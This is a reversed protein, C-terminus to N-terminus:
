YFVSTREAAAQMPLTLQPMLSFQRTYVTYYITDNWNVKGICALIGGAHSSGVPPTSSIRAALSRLGRRM